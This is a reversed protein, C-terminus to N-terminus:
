RPGPPRRRKLEHSVLQVDDPVTLRGEVGTMRGELGELRGDVRDLRGGHEEYIRGVMQYNRDILFKLEDFQQQTM